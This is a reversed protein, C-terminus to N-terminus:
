EESDGLLTGALVSCDGRLEELISLVAQPYNDCDRLQDKREESTRIFLWAESILQGWTTVQGSAIAQRSAEDRPGLFQLCEERFGKRGGHGCCPRM